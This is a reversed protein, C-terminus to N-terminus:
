HMATQNKLYRRVNFWGVISLTGFFLISIIVLTDLIIIKNIIMIVLLISFYIAECTLIIDTWMVSNKSKKILKRIYIGLVVVSVVSLTVGITSLQNGNFIQTLTDRIIVLMLWSQGLIVTRVLYSVKAMRAIVIALIIPGLGWFLYSWIQPDGLRIANETVFIYVMGLAIIGFIVFGIKVIPSKFENM